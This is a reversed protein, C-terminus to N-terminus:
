FGGRIAAWAIAAVGACAALIAIVVAAIEKGTAPADVLPQYGSGRAFDPPVRRTTPHQRAPEALHCAQPVPCPTRGQQCQDASCRPTRSQCVGLENCPRQSPQGPQHTPAATANIIPMAPELHARRQARTLPTTTPM